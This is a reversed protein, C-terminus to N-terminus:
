RPLDPLNKRAFKKLMRPAERTHSSGRGHGLRGSITSGSTGFKALGPTSRKAQRGSTRRRTRITAQERGKVEEALLVRLVEAHEWRQATANAIVEPAARRIYLLRRRRLLQDLEDPLPPPVPPKVTM